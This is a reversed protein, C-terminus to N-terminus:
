GKKGYTGEKLNLSQMTDVRESEIKTKIYIYFTLTSSHKTTSQQLRKDRVWIGGDKLKIQDLGIRLKFGTDRLERANDCLIRIAYTQRDIGQQGFRSGSLRKTFLGYGPEIIFCPLKLDQEPSEDYVRYNPFMEKLERAIAKVIDLAEISM